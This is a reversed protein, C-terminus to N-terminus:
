NGLISKSQSPNFPMQSVKTTGGGLAIATPKLLNDTSDNLLRRYLNQGGGFMVATGRGAKYSKDFQGVSASTTDQSFVASQNRVYENNTMYGAVSLNYETGYATEDMRFKPNQSHLM